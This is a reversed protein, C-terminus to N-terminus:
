KKLFNKKDKIKQMLYSLSKYLKIEGEGIVYYDGIKPNEFLSIRNVSIEPGGLIHITNKKQERIYEIIKLIQEINWIYCSYGVYDPNSKLIKNAIEEKHTKNDFNLIEIFLQDSDFFKKLYSKLIYSSLLYKALTEDSYINILVLKFQGKQLKEIM